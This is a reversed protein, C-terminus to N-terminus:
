EGGKPIDEGLILARIYKVPPSGYSLAQDHYRRLTFEDGWAQEVAARMEVHERYGVLYTSLQTSNLQARVWKGAAEREEQFGGEIMLKMAEERTMGDVHIAADIIANTVGRLYWKMFILKALPDNDLYGVEIMVRESYEAWGEIMPGSGLVGRLTSPYRNSMALQLHHGPLGEHVTLVQVSLENYERLFSEVQEESWDAPLPAVAYYANLGKDLPGPSDLYALSVGRQFEPMVIIEIPDDPVTVINHEIIFDVAQQLQQKALDVIGDRPPLVQYAVELAARIITQKYAEDPNDPFATYPHRSVYVEKSVEYMQNRLSEYEAEAVAQVEKRSMPSDLTFALKKDFLEAGIRFDGAARPLLEEELWTQHDGLADKATEIAEELRARTAPPLADMEPIIMNEIISVVGLNQAIATEAHIKPVREPEISARAQELFRPFQELRVAANALRDELPAFDRAVLNYISSGARDVYYLPNWAWEQLTELSWLRSRVEGTLLEFDVQNPRSLADRDIDALAGLYVKYAAKLAARAHADVEDLESDASHDGIWTSAVPSFTPLDSVFQEALNEFDENAGPAALANAALASGLVVAIFRKV